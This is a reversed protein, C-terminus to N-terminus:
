KKLLTKLQFRQIFIKIGHFNPTVFIVLLIAGALESLILHNVRMFGEGQISYFEEVIPLYSGTDIDKEDIKQYLDKSM